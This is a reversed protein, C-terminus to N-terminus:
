SRAQEHRTEDASGVNDKRQGDDEEATPSLMFFALLHTNFLRVKRGAVVTTVGILLRDAQDKVLYPELVTVDTLPHLRLPALQQPHGTEVLM